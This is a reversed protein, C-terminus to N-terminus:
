VMNLWQWMVQYMTYDHEDSTIPVMLPPKLRSWFAPNSTGTHLIYSMWGSGSGGSTNMSSSSSGGGGGGSSSGSGADKMVHVGLVYPQQLSSWFDVICHCSGGGDTKSSFMVTEHTGTCSSGEPAFLFPSAPSTTVLPVHAVVQTPTVMVYEPLMPLRLPVKDCPHTFNCSFFVESGVVGLVADVVQECLMLRNANRQMMWAMLLVAAVAVAM